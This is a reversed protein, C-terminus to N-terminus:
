AARLGDRAAKRAERWTVLEDELWAVARGTPTIKLPKPFEGREIAVHLQTRGLGTFSLVAPLRLLRSGALAPKIDAM